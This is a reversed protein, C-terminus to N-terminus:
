CCKKKKQTTLVTGTLDIKNSNKKKVKSGINNQKNVFARATDIFLQEINSNDKASTELFPINYHDALDQGQETSVKRKSILDSKNGVLIKLVDNKAYKEIDNM